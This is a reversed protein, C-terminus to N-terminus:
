NASYSISVGDSTRLSENGPHDLARDGTLANGLPAGLDPEWVADPRTRPCHGSLGWFHGGGVMYGLIEGFQPTVQM